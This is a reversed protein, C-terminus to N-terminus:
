QIKPSVYCCKSSNFKASKHKDIMYLKYIRSTPNFYRCHKIHWLVLGFLILRLLKFTKIIQFHNHSQLDIDSLVRNCDIVNAVVNRSSKVRIFSSLICILFNWLGIRSTVVASYACVINTVQHETHIACDDSLFIIFLQKDVMHITHFWAYSM